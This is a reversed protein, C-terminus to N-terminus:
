ADQAYAPFNTPLYRETSCQRTFIVCVFLYLHSQFKQPPLTVPSKSSSLVYRLKKACFFIIPLFQKLTDNDHEALIKGHEIPGLKKQNQKM